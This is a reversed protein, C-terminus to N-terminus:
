TCIFDAFSALDFDYTPRVCFALIATVGFAVSIISQVAFDRQNDPNAQDTWSPPHQELVSEM